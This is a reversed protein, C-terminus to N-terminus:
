LFLDRKFILDRDKLLLRETQIELAVIEEEEMAMMVLDMDEEEQDMITIMTTDEELVMDEVLLDLAEEEAAVADGHDMMTVVVLNMEEQVSVIMTTPVDLAV